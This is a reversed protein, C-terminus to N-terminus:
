TLLNICISVEQKPQVGTVSAAVVLVLARLTGVVEVIKRSRTTRSDITLKRTDLKPAVTVRNWLPAHTKRGHPTAVSNLISMYLTPDNAINRLSSM